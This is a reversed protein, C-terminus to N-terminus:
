LMRCCLLQDAPADAMGYATHIWTEFMQATHLWQQNLRILRQVAPQPVHLTEALEAVGTHQRGLVCELQLCGVTPLAMAQWLQQITKGRTRVRHLNSRSNTM